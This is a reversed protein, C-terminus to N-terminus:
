ITSYFFNQIDKGTYYLKGTPTHVTAKIDNSKTYKILTNRCIGLLEATEKVTYRRNPEIGTLQGTLM